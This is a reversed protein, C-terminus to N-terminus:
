LEAFIVGMTGIGLALGWLRFTGFGPAEGTYQEPSTGNATANSSNPPTAEATPLETHTSTTVSDEAATTPTTISPEVATSSSHTEIATSSSPTEAPPTTISSSTSVSSSSAAAASTSTTVGLTGPLPFDVLNPCISMGFSYANKADDGSCVKYIIDKLTDLFHADNCICQVNAPDCKGTGISTLIPGQACKPIKSIDFQALATAAFAFALLVFPAVSMM